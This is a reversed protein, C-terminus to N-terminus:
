TDAFTARVQEAWGEPDDVALAMWGRALTKTGRLRLQDDAVAEALHWATPTVISFGVMDDPEGAHFIQGAGVYAWRSSPLVVLRDELLYLDWRFVTLFGLSMPSGYSLRGRVGLETRLAQPEIRQRMSAHKQRSFFQIVAFMFACWAAAGVWWQLEPM